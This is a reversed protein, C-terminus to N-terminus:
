SVIIVTVHNICAVCLIIHNDCVSYVHSAGSVCTTFLGLCIISCHESNNLSAGGVCLIGLYLIHAEWTGYVTYSWIKM